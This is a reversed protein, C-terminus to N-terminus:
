SKRKSSPRKRTAAARRTGAGKKAAASKGQAKTKARRRRVKANGKQRDRRKADTSAKEDRSKAVDERVRTRRRNIEPWAENESYRLTGVKERDQFLNWAKIVMAAKYFNPRRKHKSTKLDLLFRRLQYVPDQRGYEFGQGNEDMGHILLHFFQSAGSRNYEAFMYYLSGFLAPPSCVQKADKGMTAKCADILADGHTNAWELLTEPPCKRKALSSPGYKGAEIEYVSTVHRIVAAVNSTYNYGAIKLLDGPSRKAGIDIVMVADDPVNRQVLCKASIGTEKIALLRHQGDFLEGHTNFRIPDGTFKWQDSRLADKLDELDHKKINRQNEPRMELYREAIKPTILEIRSSFKAGPKPKRVAPHSKTTTSM